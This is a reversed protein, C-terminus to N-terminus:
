TAELNELINEIQRQAHKLLITIAETRTKTPKVFCQLQWLRNANNLIQSLDHILDQNWDIKTM